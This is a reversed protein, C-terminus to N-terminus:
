RSRGALRGALLVPNSAGVAAEHLRGDVEELRQGTGAYRDADWAVNTADALDIRAVGPLRDDWADSLLAGPGPDPLPPARELAEADAEIDLGSMVLEVGREARQESRGGVPLDRAQTHRANPQRQTTSRASLQFFARDRSGNGVLGKKRAKSLETDGASRRGRSPVRSTGGHADRRWGNWARDSAAIVDEM